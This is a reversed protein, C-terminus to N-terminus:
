VRRRWFQWWPPPSSDQKTPNPIQAQELQARLADREATVRGLDKSLEAVQDVLPRLWEDRIAALQASAAPSIAPLDETVQGASEEATAPQGVTRGTLQAITRVDGLRILKGRQGTIAAVKGDQVWRRLTRPPVGTMHSASEVTVYEGEAM